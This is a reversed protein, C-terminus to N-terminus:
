TARTISTPATASDLTFTEATTSHDLRKITKTTGTIASEGLHALVESMFQDSTPAAANARYGETIQRGGVATAIDSASPLAAVAASTALGAQIEAVANAAIAAANVTDTAMAGVSSDMRGSVLAAPIRTQINDTDAQLAALQTDLNASALGVASRTTAATLPATYGATALRTSVAADLNSLAAMYSPYIMYGTGSVPNTAWAASVTAVKTSGVYSTILRVQDQGTSSRLVVFQGNYFNDTASAGANLTITSAGGGAAAGENTSMLNPMAVVVYVSTNDPNTRWDRDVVAVKTSGTYQIITRSQGAGTGSRITILGPDYLNDTASATSALTITNAAGAQATGVNTIMGYPEVVPVGAVAEAPACRFHLAVTKGAVSNVTASVIVSYWKGAEFGNAASCTFTGRYNGTLSTRKTMNVVSVIPTDTDEEFVSFTPTSDADSVAGTSVNSTIADFFVVEDIPVQSSM